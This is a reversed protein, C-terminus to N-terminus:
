FHRSRVPICKGGLYTAIADTAEKISAYPGTAIGELDSGVDPEIRFTKDQTQLLDGLSRMSPCANVLWVGKGRQLNERGDKRGM